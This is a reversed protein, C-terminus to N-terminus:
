NETFYCIGKQKLPDMHLNMTSNKCEIVKVVFEWKKAEPIITELVNTSNEFFKRNVRKDSDLAFYIIEREVLDNFFHTGLSVDLVLGSHMEAIEGIINVNNIEAFRVPIGLSPTSTGWRGPGILITKLQKSSELQNIKGILRAISYKQERKLIGYENPIIYVIRDIFTSIGSGIIPGATEFIVSEADVERPYTINVKETKVQFPRCQLINIKYNKEDSFNVTFEIDVPSVYAKELTELIERMDAIFQKDSLLKNFTLVYPFINPRNLKEMQLEFQEDKTTSLDLIVKSADQAIEKFSRTVLKNEKLDLVDIKWQSYQRIERANTEPRL